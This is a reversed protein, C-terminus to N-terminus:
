DTKKMKSVITFPLGNRAVNLVVKEDAIVMKIRVNLVGLAKQVVEMDDNTSIM